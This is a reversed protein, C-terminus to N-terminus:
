ELMSSQILDSRPAHVTQHTLIHDTEILYAHNIQNSVDRVTPAHPRHLATMMENSARFLFFMYKM